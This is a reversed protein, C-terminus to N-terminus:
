GRVRHLKIFCTVIEVDVFAGESSSTIPLRVSTEADDLSAYLLLSSVTNNFEYTHVTLDIDVTSVRLYFEGRVELVDSRNLNVVYIRIVNRPKGYIEGNTVSSAFPRYCLVIESGELTSAVYVQSMVSSSRNVVAEADGRLFLGNDDGSTFPLLYSAEGVSGNYLVQFFSDGDTLNLRLMKSSPKTRFVGGYEDFFVVESSGPLWAVNRVTQDLLLMNRRAVSAKLLRSRANIKIMAFCYTTSIIIILSVFLILFTVPIALGNRSRIVRLLAWKSKQKKEM